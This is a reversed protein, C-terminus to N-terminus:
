ITASSSLLGGRLVVLQQTLICVCTLRKKCGCLEAAAEFTEFILSDDAFTATLAYNSILTDVTIILRTVSLFQSVPEKTTFSHFCFPRVKNQLNLLNFLKYFGNILLSKSVSQRTDAIKFTMNQISLKKLFLLMPRCTFYFLSFPHYFPVPSSVPSLIIFRSDLEVLSSPHYLPVAPHRRHQLDYEPDLTEYYIYRSQHYFPLYSSLVRTLLLYLIIFRSQRTVATKFTMNQISLKTLFLLMQRRTFDFLSSPHYFPCPLLVFSSRHITTPGQTWTWTMAIHNLSQSSRRYGRATLVSTAGGQQCLVQATMALAATRMCHHLTHITCTLSNQLMKLLLLFPVSGLKPFTLTNLQHRWNESSHLMARLCATRFCSSIMVLVWIEPLRSPPASFTKCLLFTDVGFPLFTPECLVKLFTPTTMICASIRSRCTTIFGLWRQSPLQASSASMGCQKKRCFLVQDYSFQPFNDRPVSKETGSSFQRSAPSLVCVCTCRNISPVEGAPPINHSSM